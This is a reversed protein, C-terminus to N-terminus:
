RGPAPCYPEDELVFETELMAAAIWEAVAPARTVTDCYARTDEALPPHYTNFRMVVPAFMADAASFEGFLFAGKGAGRGFENRADRWVTEIRAIDKAVDTSYGKGPHQNRINMPMASRLSRFGGHMEASISRARARATVAHPWIAEQPVREAVYEIIALTDWVCISPNVVRDRSRGLGGDWLVPVLRSPSLQGIQEDWEASHFKLLVEDFAIGFQKLLVWPRMSWSSYNKNAIVLTFSPASLVPM